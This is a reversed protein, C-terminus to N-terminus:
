ISFNFKKRMFKDIIDFANASRRKLSDPDDLYETIARTTTENIATAGIDGYLGEWYTRQGSKYASSTEPVQKEYIFNSCFDVWDSYHESQLEDSLNHAVEHNLIHQKVENEYNFFKDSVWIETTLNQAEASMNPKYKIKLGHYSADGSKIDEDSPLTDGIISTSNRSENVYILTKKVYPLKDEIERQRDVLEYYRSDVSDAYSAIRDRWDDLAVDDSDDLTDLESYLKDYGSQIEELEKSISDHENKLADYEPNRKTTTIKSFLKTGDPTTMGLNIPSDNFDNKISQMLKTAIGRSRYDPNVYIMQISPENDYISYDVYGVVENGIAFEKRMDVQGSYAGTSYTSINEDSVGEDIRNSQTPNVNDILKIQNSSKLTIVDTAVDSFMEKSDHIDAIIIGDYGANDYKNMALVAKVVDDTSLYYDDEDEGIVENYFEDYMDMSFVEELYYYDLLVHESGFFSNKGLYVLDFIEDEGGHLRFEVNLPALDDNIEDVDEPEPFADQWKDFVKDFTKIQLDRVRKDKINFSSKIDALSENNVIFPNEINIYCYYVNGVKKDEYGMDTYSSASHLDTSFYNVNAKSFKYKGFQSKSSSPNFEKFGPQTTGHYCVLLNGNDDRIKSNKFFEEQERTLKNGLSDVSEDIRLIKM